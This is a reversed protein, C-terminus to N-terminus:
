ADGEDPPPPLEAREAIIKQSGRAIPLLEDHATKLSGEDRACIAVSAGAEVYAHAIAFGLGQSAGTVIANRGTLDYAM